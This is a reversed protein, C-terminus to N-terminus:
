ALFADRGAVRAVIRVDPGIRDLSRIDLQPARDLADFPGFAALDRGTGILKPALYLLLEDVCGERLLSGNLRHGAEVHLENVGRKGLEALLAALDVKGEANALVTIDAGQERLRAEKAGDDRAAFIWRPRKAILVKADAPLELRSDVIVVPPQRLLPGPLRVDLQPDDELVTGIGTLIAGARARWRHGDERAAPSTIWQSTGDPLATKGDLSAAVKLRVWPRGRLMRSFFGINLERAQARRVGEVVDVGAARLRAHGQGAVLPNPDPTASVVRTIGAHVLADCCPGTRGRHSCPELTVWATAGRVDRGHAAADRLAMVEAHADGAAQTYGRGLVEGGPSAIVCGVAPNPASVPLALAALALAEDMRAEDSM